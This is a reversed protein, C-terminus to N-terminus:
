IRRAYPKVDILGMRQGKIVWNKMQTESVGIEKATRKLGSRELHWKIRPMMEVVEDHSYKRAASKDGGEEM